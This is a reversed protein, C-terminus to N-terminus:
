QAQPVPQDSLGASINASDASTNSIEADISSVDADISTNVVASQSAPTNNATSSTSTVPGKSTFMWIGGVVLLLVVVAIIIKVSKSM